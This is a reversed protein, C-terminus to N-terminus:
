LLSFLIYFCFLTQMFSVAHIGMWELQGFEPEAITTKSCLILFFPNLLDFLILCKPM